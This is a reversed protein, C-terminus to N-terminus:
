INNNNSNPPIDLKEPPTDFYLFTKGGGKACVAGRRQIEIWVLM